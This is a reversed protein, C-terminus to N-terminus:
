ARRGRQAFRVRAMGVGTAVVGVIIGVNSALASPRGALCERFSAVVALPLSLAFAREPALATHGHQMSVRQKAMGEAFCRRIFYPLRARECPVFHWIFAKPEYAFRGDPVRERMRLGLEAEEGGGKNSPSYGLTVDYGGVEQFAARRLAACGGIVNRVHESPEPAGRYTCGVVWLFEEPLWAPKGGNEWEPRSMGSCGLIQPDTFPAALREVWEDDAVADDDLFVVIESTVQATGRNRAASLGQRESQCVVVVDDGIERRAREALAQDGDVVLVIEALSRTQRRLSAIARALM